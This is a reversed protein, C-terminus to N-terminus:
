PTLPRHNLDMGEWNVLGMVPWILLSGFNDMIRYWAVVDFLSGHFEWGKVLGDKGTDWPCPTRLRRDKEMQSDQAFLRLAGIGPRAQFPKPLGLVHDVFVM